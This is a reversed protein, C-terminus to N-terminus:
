FPHPFPHSTVSGLTCANTLLYTLLYIQREVAHSRRELAYVGPRKSPNKPPSPLPPSLTLTPHTLHPETTHSPEERIVTAGMTTGERRDDMEIETRGTSEDTDEGKTGRKRGHRGGRRGRRGRVEGGGRRWEGRGGGGRRRESEGGEEGAEVQRGGTTGMEM